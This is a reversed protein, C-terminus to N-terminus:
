YHITVSIYCMIVKRVSIATGPLTGGGLGLVGPQPLGLPAVMALAPPAVASLTAVGAAGSSYPLGTGYWDILPSYFILFPNQTGAPLLHTYSCTQESDIVVGM